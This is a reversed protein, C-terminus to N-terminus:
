GVQIREGLLIVGCDECELCFRGNDWDEDTLPEGSKYDSVHVNHGAHEIVKKQENKTM